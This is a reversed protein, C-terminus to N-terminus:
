GDGFGGGGGEDSQFDVAGDGFVGVGGDFGEACGMVDIVEVDYDGVGADRLAPGFDYLGFGSLQQLV